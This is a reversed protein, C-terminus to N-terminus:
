LRRGYTRHITTGDTETTAYYVMGSQLCNGNLPCESKQRSSCTQQQLETSSHQLQQQKLTENNHGKIRDAMNNM